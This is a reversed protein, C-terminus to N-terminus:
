RIRDETVPLVHILDPDGRYMPGLNGSQAKLVCFGVSAGVDHGQGEQM